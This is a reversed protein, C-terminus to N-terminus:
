FQVAFGRCYRGSELSLIASRYFSLVVALDKRRILFSERREGVSFATIRLNKNRYFFYSYSLSSSEMIIYGM